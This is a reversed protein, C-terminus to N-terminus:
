ATRGKGLLWNMAEEFFPTAGVRDHSPPQPIHAIEGGIFFNRGMYKYCGYKQHEPNWQVYDNAAYWPAVCRGGIRAYIRGDPLDYIIIHPEHERTM